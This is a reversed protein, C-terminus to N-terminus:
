ASEDVIEADIIDDTEDGKYVKLLKQVGTRIAILEDGNRVNDKVIELVQMALSFAQDVELTYAKAHMMRQEAEVIEVRRDILEMVDRSAAYMDLTENITDGIQEFADIFDSSGLKSHALQYAAQVKKYQELGVGESAAEARKDMIATIFAADDKLSFLDPDNRLEEIQSLLQQGVKSFRKYGTSNLGTIFNPHAPGVLSKGGHYRCYNRDSLAINNCPREGDIDNVITGRCLKIKKNGNIRYRDEGIQVIESM